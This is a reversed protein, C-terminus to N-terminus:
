LKMLKESPIQLEELKMMLWILECIRHAFVCLEDKQRSLVVM